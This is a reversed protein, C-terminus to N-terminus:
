RVLQATVSYTISDGNAHVATVQWVPPLVDSVAANAAATIGPYVKLITTGVAVIAASALITWTKGSVPDKGVITFVVSPAAGGKVTCDIVLHLGRCVPNGQDVSTPTATRAVSEFVTKTNNTDSM